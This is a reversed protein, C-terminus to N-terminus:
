ATEIRNEIAFVLLPGPMDQIADHALHDNITRM